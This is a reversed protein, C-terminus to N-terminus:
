PGALKEPLVCVCVCVCVRAYLLIHIDNKNYLLIRIAKATTFMGVQLHAAVQHDGPYHTSVHLPTICYVTAHSQIYKEEKDSNIHHYTVPRVAIRSVTSVPLGTSVSQFRWVISHLRSRLVVGTIDSSQLERERM